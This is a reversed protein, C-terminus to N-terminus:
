RRLRRHEKPTLTRENGEEDIALPIPLRKRKALTSVDVKIVEASELKIQDDLEATLMLDEEQMESIPPLQPVTPQCHPVTGGSASQQATGQSEHPKAEEDAATSACAQLHVPM